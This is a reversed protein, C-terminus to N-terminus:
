MSSNDSPTVLELFAYQILFNQFRHSGSTWILITLASVQKVGFSLSVFEHTFKHTFCFVYLHEGWFYVPGGCTYIFPAWFITWLFLEAERHDCNNERHLCNFAITHDIGWARSVKDDLLSSVVCDFFAPM